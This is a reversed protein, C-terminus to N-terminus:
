KVKLRYVAAANKWLIKEKDADGIPALLVRTLHDAPGTWPYDSGFLIREATVSRVLSEVLRYCFIDGAFDLSVNPYRSVLEVAEARGDGRGGAHGLVLRVNPFQNVWRKFRGPTSLAQSPNHASVSWTHALIPLGTKSAFSWVPAYLTDDAPTQHFSPHIKIGALGEWDLTKEVDRLGSDLDRPDIVALGRIRGGSEEFAQRLRDLGTGARELLAAHDSCVALRVAHGDMVRLLGAVSADAHTIQRAPGLHVHADIIFPEAMM